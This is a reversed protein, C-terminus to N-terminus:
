GTICGFLLNTSGFPCPHIEMMPIRPDDERDARNGVPAISDSLCHERHLRM